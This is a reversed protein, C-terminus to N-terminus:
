KKGTAFLRLIAGDAPRRIGSRRENSFYTFVNKSCMVVGFGAGAVLIYYPM